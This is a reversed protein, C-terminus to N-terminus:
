KGSAAPNSNIIIPTVMVNGNPMEGVGNDGGTSREGVGNDGGTSREGVGNDGGTSREGVGNDDGFSITQANLGKGPSTNAPTSDKLRSQSPIQQGPQVNATQEASVESSNQGDNEGAYCIGFTLLLILASVGIRNQWTRKRMKAEGNKLIDKFLLIDGSVGAFFYVVKSIRFVLIFDRPRCCAM